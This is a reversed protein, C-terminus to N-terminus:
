DEDTIAETANLETRLAFVSYETLVEMFREETLESYDTKMYAEAVWEDEPGVHELVSEGVIERRNVFMDVWRQRIQNWDGGDIRGKHKTKIFGDERWYGFWSKHDPYDGHPYHAKFVMACTVVGVPHFLEPPMSMVAELRHKTLLSRKGATGTACSIPVIAIGIGGPALTDLMTEVFDLEQLREGKQAYPPNILGVTPRLKGLPETSDRRHEKVATVVPEDFCSGQYLNAKGDGRLLMNSAALAYMNPQNEIGILRNQRIDIAEDETTTQDLMRAMASILFAGTGACTDVVVDRKTVQALQCFLETIHRPTLVIGLSKKDGGTYKLFEGYFSGVVDYGEYIDMLPVVDQDLKRILEHLPGKPFSTTPKALEPHVAITSYPQSINKKKAQPIDAEEIENQIAQLWADQLKEPRYSSYATRFPKNMLAILTGSVLLPKESETLKAHDRMFDHMTRSIELLEDLRRRKVKPDFRFASQYDAWSVIRDLAAGSPATLLRHTEEGKPWLYTSVRWDKVSEGSSAIALVHFERALFRAYHLVGDAAFGKPRDLAASEHKKPDAKCEVICVVDDDESSTIIFEPSGIGQGGQKSANKLLRKLIESRPTQEAVDITDAGYYGHDRLADRILNENNRENAM